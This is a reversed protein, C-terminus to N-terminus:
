ESPKVFFSAILGVVSIATFLEMPLPIELEAMIPAAAQSFRGFLNCIGFATGCLLVPFLWPTAIYCVCQTVSSGFKALLVFFAILLDQSAFDNQFIMLGGGVVSIAYGVVFTWRPGLKSFVIGACVDALIEAIGAISFNFYVGGPVYKLYLNILMSNISATVWMIIMVILTILIKGSCLGETRTVKTPVVVIDEDQDAEELTKSAPNVGSYLEDEQVTSNERAEDEEKIPAQSVRTKRFVKTSREVGNM